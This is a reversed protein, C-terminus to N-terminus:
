ICLLSVPIFLTSYYVYHMVEAGPYTYIAQKQTNIGIILSLILASGTIYILTKLNDKFHKKFYATNNKM